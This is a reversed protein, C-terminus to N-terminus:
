LYCQWWNRTTTLKLYGVIKNWKGIAFIHLSRYSTLKITLLSETRRCHRHVLKKDIITIIFRHPWDEYEAKVELDQEDNVTYLSIDNRHQTLLKRAQSSSGRIRIVDCSSSKTPIWGTKSCEREEPLWVTDRKKKSHKCGIKEVLRHIWRQTASM